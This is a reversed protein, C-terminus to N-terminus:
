VNWIQLGVKTCNDYQGDTGDGSWVIAEYTGCLSWGVVSDNALSGDDVILFMPTQRGTWCGPAARQALKGDAQYAFADFTFGHGVALTDSVINPNDQYLHRTAASYTYNSGTRITWDPSRVLVDVGRSVEGDAMGTTSNTTFNLAGLLFPGLQVAAANCVGDARRHPECADVVGAGGALGALAVILNSVRM